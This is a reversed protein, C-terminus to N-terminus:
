VKPGWFSFTPSSPLVPLSIFTHQPEQADEHYYFQPKM